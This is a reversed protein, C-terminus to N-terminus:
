QARLAEVPNARAARHAPLFAAAAATVLLLAAAAAFTAADVPGVGFLVGGLGRAVLAALALGLAVGIAVVLVSEGVVMRTLGMHTAGLAMRVGLEQTRREVNFSVAAYVGLGALLLALLSFGSILAVGTRATAFGAAVQAELTGQRTVPLSSRVEGLAAKLPATLAAPDGSTRAVVIFGISPVQDTSYYFMPAPPETVDSVKVDAVVGIVERWADPDTQSRMRQGLANGGFYLRAATENVLVVPPSQPHDVRSFNRGALLPIGMTEFYQWSVGAVPLEVSGTGAAPTYGDVVMTATFGVQVPLRTTLAAREVGPLAAVRALIEASVAGVDEQAVGGQQLNTGLIAIREADVGLEVREANALSRAMLGAAVVLVVSLAVQAAVLCKRLLSVRGGASHGRGEDRLAAVVDTKSARLAPILGFFLGTALAALMGFLVVRHDFRVDLEGASIPLPLSPLGQAAVAAVALGVAGGLGALLLAEFLLLRAVRLWGAGLASRVAIEPGRAIGRALFLNALNSCALLLVVGALVLLSTTSAFLMTDLAPHFRVEDQAFVTIDRGADLEPNAEALRRALGDMAAQAQVLTVGPALRAKVQYWHDQPRDLNAVSFPGGVPTSSISLWFDISLAGAEGSYDRPGVGIITVPQNNLRITRGVVNPDSGFRTRWARDSMVAVLESGVVDHQSSFWNGLYTRLGLVGFYSATAFEISVLRPGEAADWRAESASTAAVGAFADIMAAMERYAPFSTSFPAGDDSDQYIHVIRDPQDFPAPRFLTADVLNFVAANLGIGVALIAIACLTFVPTRSLRRAAYRLDQLLSSM